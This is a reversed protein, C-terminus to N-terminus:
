DRWTTKSQRLRRTGNPEYYIHTVYNKEGKEHLVKIFDVFRFIKMGKQLSKFGKIM